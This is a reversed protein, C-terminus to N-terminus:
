LSAKSLFAWCAPVRTSRNLRKEREQTGRHSGQWNRQQRTEWKRKNTHASTALSAPICNFDDQPSAGQSGGQTICSRGRGGSLAQRARLLHALSPLLAASTSVKNSCSAQAPTTHGVGHLIWLLISVPPFLISLSCRSRQATIGGPSPFCLRTYGKAWSPSRQRLEQRVEDSETCHGSEQGHSGKEELHDHASPTAKPQVSSNAGLFLVAANPGLPLSSSHSEDM